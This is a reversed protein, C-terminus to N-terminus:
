SYCSALPSCIVCKLIGLLNPMIYNVARYIEKCWKGKVYLM